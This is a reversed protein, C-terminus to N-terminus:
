PGPDSLLKQPSSGLPLSTSSFLHCPSSGILLMKVPFDLLLVVVMLLVFLRGVVPLLNM